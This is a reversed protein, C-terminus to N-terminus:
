RKLITQIIEDSHASLFSIVEQAEKQLSIEALQTIVDQAIKIKDVKIDNEKPAKLKYYATAYKKLADLREIPKLEKLSTLADEYEHLLLSLFKSEQEKTTKTNTLKAIRIEDWDIGEKLDEKKHYYVSQPTVNIAAAIEDASRGSTYLDRYIKRKGM